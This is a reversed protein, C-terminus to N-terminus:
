KHNGGIRQIIEDRRLASFYKEGVMAYLLFVALGNCHVIDNQCKNYWKKVTHTQSPNWTLLSILLDARGLYNNLEVQLLNCRTAMNQFQRGTNDMFAKCLNRRLSDCHTGAMLQGFIDPDTTAMQDILKMAPTPLITELFTRGPDPLFMQPPSFVTHFLMDPIGLRGKINKLWTDSDDVLMDYIDQLCLGQVQKDVSFFVPRKEPFRQCIEEALYVPRYFKSLIDEIGRLQSDDLRQGDADEDDRLFQLFTDLNIISSEPDFRIDTVQFPYPTLVRKDGPQPTGLKNAANKRLTAISKNDVTLFSIYLTYGKLHPEKIVRECTTRLCEEVKEPTCNSTVQVLVHHSTDCLDFGASNVKKELKLDYGYLVNMLDRIVVEAGKSEGNDGYEGEVKVESALATLYKLMRKKLIPLSDTVTM